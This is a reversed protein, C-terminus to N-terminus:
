SEKLGSSDGGASKSPCLPSRDVITNTKSIPLTHPRARQHGANSCYGFNHRLESAARLNAVYVPWVYRKDEDTSLQV